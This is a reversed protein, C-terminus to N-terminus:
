KGGYLLQTTRPRLYTKIFNEFDEETFSILFRGDQPGIKFGAHIDNTFKVEVGQNLLDSTKENFFQEMQQRKEEPLIVALELGVTGQPDWNKVASEILSQVFQTDEFSKSVIPQVTQHTVLATIEQKMASLAQKSTMRLESDVNKHLEDAKAQSEQLLNEAEQQAKALIESAEKNAKSIIDKAEQQAKTIGEAYIKQTLEQLKNEM